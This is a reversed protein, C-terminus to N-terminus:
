EDETGITLSGDSSKTFTEDVITLITYGSALRREHGQSNQETFRLATM